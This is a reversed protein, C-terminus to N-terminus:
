KRNLSDLRVVANYYNSGIDGCLYTDELSIDKSIDDLLAETADQYQEYVELRKITSKYCRYMIFDSCAITGIVLVLVATIINKSKNDM